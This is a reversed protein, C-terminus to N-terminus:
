NSPKDKIDTFCGPNSEGGDIHAYSADQTINICSTGAGGILNPNSRFMDTSSVLANIDFKNSAYITNAQSDCFTAHMNIVKSTDFSSLDLITAKSAGFMEEMTCNDGTKWERPFIITTAQSTNFMYSMDTVNLTDFSSLDLSTAPSFRFMHSMNTVKSTNFKNLGIISAAQSYNFMYQMNTVNSTDFSSLDLSIAQSGNFMYQMDTVNSTDFSSLNLITAKNSNFMGQMSTVKSTNFSSLDLQSVHCSYFMNDMSDVNSTDFSSLGMILTAKSNYFMNRMNTVNSTDFTSLDLSVAKSGWFMGYMNTVNSTDLNNLNVITAQSGRFMSQMDIINSTDYSALAIISIAQSDQYISALNVLPKDNIYVCPPETIPDTSTKDTLIVGWGNQNANAWTSGNYYQNYRYTYLNDTYEKGTTPVQGKVYDDTYCRKAKALKSGTESISISANFIAGQNINQDKGNDKFYIKLTYEHTDDDADTFIGTGIKMYGNPKVISKGTINSIPTGNTSVCTLDFTLQGGKFTNSEINLGVEYTMDLDTTNKGTLTFTKTLWAEERPYINSASVLEPGEVYNIYMTGGNARLTSASELGTIRASFYAYSAGAVVIILSIISIILVTKNKKNM